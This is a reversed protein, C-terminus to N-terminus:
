VGTVGVGVDARLRVRAGEALAGAVEVSVAGHRVILEGPVGAFAALRWPTPDRLARLAEPDSM